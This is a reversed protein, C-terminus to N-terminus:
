RAARKPTSPAAPRQTNAVVDKEVCDGRAWGEQCALSLRQLEADQADLEARLQAIEAHRRALGAMSPRVASPQMSARTARMGTIVVPPM